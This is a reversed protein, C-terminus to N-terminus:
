KPVSSTAGIKKEPSTYTTVWPDVDLCRLRRVNGILRRRRNIMWKLVGSKAARNCRITIQITEHVGPAFLSSARVWYSCFLSHHHSPCQLSPHQRFQGVSPCEIPLEPVTQCSSVVTSVTTSKLHHQLQFRVM